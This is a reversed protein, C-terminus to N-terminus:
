EMNKESKKVWKDTGWVNGMITYVPLNKSFYKLVMMSSNYIQTSSQKEDKSTYDLEPLGKRKREQNEFFRKRAFDTKGLDGTILVSDIEKL